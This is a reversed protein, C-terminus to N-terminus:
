LSVEKNKIDGFREGYAIMDIWREGSGNRNKKLEEFEALTYSVRESQSMGIIHGPNEYDKIYITLRNEANNGRLNKEIKALRSKLKM